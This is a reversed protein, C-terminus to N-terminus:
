PAGPIPGEAVNDERTEFEENEADAAVRYACSGPPTEFTLDFAASKGRDAVQELAGARKMAGPM